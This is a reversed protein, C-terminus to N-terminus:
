CGPMLFGNKRSDRFHQNTLSSRPRNTRRSGSSPFANASHCRMLSNALKWCEEAVSSDIKSAYRRSKSGFTDGARNRSQTRTRSPKATQCPGVLIALVTVADSTSRHTRSFRSMPSSDRWHDIALCRSAPLTTFFAREQAIRRPYIGHDSTVSNSNARGSDRDSVISKEICQRNMASQWDCGRDLGNASSRIARRWVPARGIWIRSAVAAFTTCADQTNRTCLVDAFVPLGSITRRDGHRWVRLRMKACWRGDPARNRVEWPLGHVFSPVARRNRRIRSRRPM